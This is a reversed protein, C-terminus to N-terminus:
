FLFLFFAIEKEEQYVFKKKERELSKKKQRDREREASRKIYKQHQTPFFFNIIRRRKRFISNKKTVERKNAVFIM